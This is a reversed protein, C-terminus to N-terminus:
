LRSGFVGLAAVVSVALGTYMQSRGSFEVAKFKMSILVLFLCEPNHPDLVEVFISNQM